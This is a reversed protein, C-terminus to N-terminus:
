RRIATVASRAIHDLPILYFPDELQSAVEDACLMLLAMVFMVQPASSSFFVPIHGACALQQCVRERPRGFAGLAPPVCRYSSGCSRKTRGCALPCSSCGSSSSARPCWPCARRLATPLPLHIPSPSPLLRGGAAQVAGMGVAAGWRRRRRSWCAWASPAPPTRPPSPRRWKCTSHAVPPPPLPPGALNALACRRHCRLRAPSPQLRCGHWCAGTMGALALRVQEMRLGATGILQRLRALAPYAGKPSGLIVAAEEPSRHARLCFISPLLTAAPAAPLICPLAPRCRAAARGSCRASEFGELHAGSCSRRAPTCSRAPWCLACRKTSSCSAGSRWSRRRKTCVLPPLAASKCIARQHGVARRPGVDLQSAQKGAARHRGDAGGGAALADAHQAGRRWLWIGRLALPRVQPLICLGAFSHCIVTALSCGALRRCGAPWAALLRAVGCSVGQQHARHAAPRRRLLHAPLGQHAHRGQWAASPALCTSPPDPRTPVSAAPAPAVQPKM